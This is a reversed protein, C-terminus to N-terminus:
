VDDRVSKIDHHAELHHTAAAQLLQHTIGDTEVVTVSTNQVSTKMIADHDAGFLKLLLIRITGGHSVVAIEEGKEREIIETFAEYARDQMMQRSEGQPVIYGMYNAQSESFEKPYRSNIEPYTLGQFVGLNLERWRPDEQVEVKVAEGLINATQSARILDSSFIASIPRDKLHAALAHAQEIGVANLPVQITGQWRGQVNWDTQGHRILLVRKKDNV